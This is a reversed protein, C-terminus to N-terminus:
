CAWPQGSSACSTHRDTSDYVVACTSAQTFTVSTCAEGSCTGATEFGAFDWWSTTTSNGTTVDSLGYGGASYNTGSVESTTSTWTSDTTSSWTAADQYFAMKYADAKQFYGELFLKKAENTIAATCAAEVSAAVLAMMFIKTLLVIVVRKM